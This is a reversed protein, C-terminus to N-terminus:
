TGFVRCANIDANIDIALNSLTTHSKGQPWDKLKGRIVQVNTLPCPRSVKKDHSRLGCFGGRTGGGETEAGGSDGMATKDNNYGWQSQYGLQNHTTFGGVM